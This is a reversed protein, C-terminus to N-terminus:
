DSKDPAENKDTTAIDLLHAGLACFLDFTEKATLNVSNMPWYMAVGRDTIILGNNERGIEIDLHGYSKLEQQFEGVRIDIQTGRDM